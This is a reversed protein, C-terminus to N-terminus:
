SYEQEFEQIISVTAATGNASIAWLEDQTSMKLYSTVNSKLLAGGGNNLDALRQAFRVDNSTSENLLLIQRRNLDLGCLRVPDGTAPVTIHRPASTVVRTGSGRTVLYVPVPREPDFPPVYRIPHFKPENPGRIFEARERTTYSEPMVGHTNDGRYEQRPAPIPVEQIVTPQNVIHRRGGPIPSPIGQTRASAGIDRGEPSDPDVAPPPQRPHKRQARGM